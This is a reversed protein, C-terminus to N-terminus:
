NVLKQAPNVLWLAGSILVGAEDNLSWEHMRKDGTQGEVLQYSGAEKLEVIEADTLEFSAAEKLKFSEIVTDDQFIQM